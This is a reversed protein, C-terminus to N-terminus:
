EKEPATNDIRVTAREKKQMRALIAQARERLFEASEEDGEEKARAAAAFLIEAVEAADPIDASERQSTPSAFILEPSGSYFYFGPAAVAIFVAVAAAGRFDGRPKENENENENESENKADRARLFSFLAFFLAAATMLFALAIFIATM